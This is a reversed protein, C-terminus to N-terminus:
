YCAAYAITILRESWVGFRTRGSGENSGLHQIVQPVSPDQGVVAHVQVATGANRHALFNRLLRLDNAPSGQSTMADQIHRRNELALARIAKSMINATGLSTARNSRLWGDFQARNAVEAVGALEHGSRTRSGGLASELVLRYCFEEWEAYACITLYPRDAGAQEFERELIRLRWELKRALRRLELTRM